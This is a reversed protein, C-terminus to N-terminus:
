TIINKPRTSLVIRNRLRGQSTYLTEAAVNAPNGGAKLNEIQM